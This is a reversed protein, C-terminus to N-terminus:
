ESDLRDLLATLAATYSAGRFGMVRGVVVDALVSVRRFAERADVNSLHVEVTPVGSLVVADRIALSGHTLAGANLLVGDFTGTAEQIWTVLDGEHNSQRCVVEVDRRAGAAVIKADIQALTETGYISPERRGLADLNPGHVVLIRRL